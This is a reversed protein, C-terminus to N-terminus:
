RSGVRIREIATSLFAANDCNEFVSLLEAEPTEAIAVVEAVLVPLARTVNDVITITAQQATRSLPNLDVTIVEKGAKVLAACRDGDELPVFVVDAIALGDPHVFRRNSDIGDLTVESDPLLVVEAGAQKLHEAIARERDGSAHFINVEIPAPVAQSLQVIDDPVLAATNGNISLVPHKATRLRAAAARIAQSAFAHTQEGLLYDFAEGRGHAILGHPSTIGSEVGSVIADRLRLSTYRPHTTPVDTV